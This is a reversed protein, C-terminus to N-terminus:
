ISDQSRTVQWVVTSVFPSRTLYHPDQPHGGGPSSCLGPWQVCLIQQARQWVAELQVELTGASYVQSFTLLCDSCAM